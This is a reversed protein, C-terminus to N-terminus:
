YLNTDLIDEMLSVLRKICNNDDYYYIYDTNAIDRKIENLAQQIEMKNM